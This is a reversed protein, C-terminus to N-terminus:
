HQILLDHKCYRCYIADSKIEEACYPCKKTGSDVLAPETKAIKRKEDAVRAILASLQEQTMIKSKVMEKNEKPVEFSANCSSCVLIQKNSYSFTPIFYLTFKKRLQFVSFANTQHCSPCENIIYGLHDTYGKRGWILVM